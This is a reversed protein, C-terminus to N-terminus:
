GYCPQGAAPDAPVVDLGSDALLARVAAPGAGIGAWHPDVDSTFCWSQDAPWVIAPPEGPLSDGFEDIARLPGRFLAFHRYPLDTLLPGPPLEHYGDWLAFYCDDPTGTFAALVRLARRAQSLDDPHDDPVDVDAEDQGASVPDPVYRLRAYAAFGDPGMTILQHAEAASQVLWDAASMDSCRHLLTM